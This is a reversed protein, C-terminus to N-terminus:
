RLVSLVVRPDSPSGRATTPLTRDYTILSVVTGAPLVVPEELVLAQPWEPRCEPMWLLVEVSGDPRRARLELSAAREGPSPQLAWVTSERPLTAEGRRRGGDGDPRAAVAIEDIPRTPGGAAFYLELAPRDVVPEGAGRYYLVLALRSRARLRFAHPAPPATTNQPGPRWAGLWQGPAALGGADFVLAGRLVRRDGPRVVVRRVWRDTALGTQLTVRRVVLERDAPIRQPAAPLRRDPEVGEPDPTEERPPLDRGDGRRMGGDLWSLLTAEERASLALESRFRGYGPAASWPPMRQEIIEERIARGWARVEPYDALSMSLGGPSHCGLCKRQMIRIIERTFRVDSTVPEDSRARGGLALAAIATALGGAAM